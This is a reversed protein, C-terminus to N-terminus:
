KGVQSLRNHAERTLPMIYTQNDLRLAALYDTRAAEPHGEMENIQGRTYLAMGLHWDFEMAYNSIVWDCMKRARALDGQQYDLLAVITSYKLQWELYQNPHAVELLEELRPLFQRVAALQGSRVLIDGRLFNFYFNDPFEGVLLDAHALANLQQDEIYALLIALTSAAEIWAHPAENAAKTLEAIGRQKDPHMGFLRAMFRVPASGSGTYYDFLGIPLYADAMSTDAEHARNVLRWGRLGSTVVTTWRKQSLAVRAKLGYTSGLYLLLEPSDPDAKLLAQYRPITAEISGLLAVHSAAAGEETLSRLWRNAVAVFPAVAHAPDLAMTSDFALAAEEFRYSYMANIGRWLQTEAGAPQEVSAPREHDQGRVWGPFCLTLALFAANFRRHIKGRLKLFQIASVPMRAVPSGAM